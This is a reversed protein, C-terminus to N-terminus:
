LEGRLRLAEIGAQIVYRTAASVGPTRRKQSLLILLRAEEPSLRTQVRPGIAPRGIKAAPM